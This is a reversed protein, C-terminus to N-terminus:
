GWEKYEHPTIYYAYSKPWEPPSYYALSDCVDTYQPVPAGDSYSQGWEEYEQPINYAYSEPWEPPSYFALSDCVETYEPAPARDSYSQGWEEYEQPIYYAYSEPWEHPICALRV